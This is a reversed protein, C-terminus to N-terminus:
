RTTVSVPETLVPGAGEALVAQFALTRGAALDAPVDFAWTALGDPGIVGSWAYTADEVGWCQGGLFGPCAGVGVASGRMLWVRDGPMGPGVSLQWAEGSVPDTTLIVADALGVFDRIWEDYADTRTSVGYETCFEDGYSTVGAVLPQDDRYIFLPGGSDGFCAGGYAQDYSVTTLPDDYGCGLVACGFGAIVGDVQLKVNSDGVETQGFGAFNVVPGIDAETLPNAAGVWPVPVVDPVPDALRLLAIDDDLSVPDYGPHPLVEVVAFAHEHFAGDAEPDDGVYIGMADPATIELSFEDVVCHAATLVVDPAILTGTCYTFASFPSDYYYGYYPDASVLGVTAEHEPAFPAAGGFIRPEGSTAQPQVVQVPDSPPLTTCASSLFLAAVFRHM